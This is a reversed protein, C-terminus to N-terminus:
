FPIEEQRNGRIAFSLRDRLADVVCSAECNSLSMYGNNERGTAISIIGNLYSMTTKGQPLYEKLRAWLETIKHAQRSNIFGSRPLKSRWYFENSINAPREVDGARVRQFLVTELAAMLSEFGSQTIARDACSDVSAHERLYQRYTPDNLGAARKYQHVIQKQRTNIM